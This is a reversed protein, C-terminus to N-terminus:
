EGWSSFDFPSKKALVESTCDWWQQRSLSFMKEWAKVIQNPLPCTFKWTISVNWQLIHSWLFCEESDMASGSLCFGEFFPYENMYIWLFTFFQFVYNCYKVTCSLISSCKNNSKKLVLGKLTVLPHCLICFHCVSQVITLGKISYRLGLCVERCTVNCQPSVWCSGSFEASMIMDCHLVVVLFVYVFNWTQSKPPQTTKNQKIEFGHDKCILFLFGLCFCFVGVWFWVM